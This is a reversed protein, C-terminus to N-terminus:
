FGSKFLIKIVLASAGFHGFHAPSCVTNYVRVFINPTQPAAGPAAKVHSGAKNSLLRLFLIDRLTLFVIPVRM